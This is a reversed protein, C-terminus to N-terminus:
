STSLDWPLIGHTIRESITNVQAIKVKVGEWKKMDDHYRSLQAPLHELSPVGDPKFILWCKEILTM